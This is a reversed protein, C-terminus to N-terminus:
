LHGFTALDEVNRALLGALLYPNPGFAKYGEFGADQEVSLVVEVGDVLRDASFGRQQRDDIGDLRHGVGAEFPAGAAHGLHALRRGPEHPQGLLDVDRDEEDAVDRFVTRDSSGPNQLM